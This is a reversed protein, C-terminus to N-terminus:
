GEVPRTSYQQLLRRLREEPESSRVGQGDLITRPLINPQRYFNGNATQDVEIVAGDLAVGAFLGRSRSYSLIEAGLQLDTAAGAQRGVPGAAASADAGITFKGDLLGEVGKRTKFVLVLDTSQAGVQFGLSGGTVTIFVPHGWQGNANRVSVVGQGYRGGIILGVKVMGPIIAIGYANSLLQPPISKEPIAMVERLVEAATNMKEDEITVAGAMRPLLTLVALLLILGYHTRKM